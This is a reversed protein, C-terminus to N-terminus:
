YIQRYIARYAAQPDEALNVASSLAIGRIGTSILGAIDAFKIGGVAILPMEIDMSEMYSIREVYGQVGLLPLGTNKTYTLAFPGCGLYDAVGYSSIRAIDERSHSSAGLIKDEGIVSRIHVLDAHMDEIHVGQIDAKDLLHYHDTILLTAGWDDCISAMESAEEILEEDSKSFCRYQIWKAGEECALRTQEAHTRNELDQTLYHLKEIHKKM